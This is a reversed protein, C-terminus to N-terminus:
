RIHGRFAQLQDRVICTRIMGGDFVCPALDGNQLGPRFFRPFFFISKKCLFQRVPECLLEEQDMTEPLSEDPDDIGDPEFPM